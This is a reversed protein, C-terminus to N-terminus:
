DPEPRLIVKMLGPVKDHLRRFWLAGEALPAAASMLADTAAAPEPVEEDCEGGVPTRLRRLHRFPHAVIVERDDEDVIMETVLFRLLRHGGDRQRRASTLAFYMHDSM